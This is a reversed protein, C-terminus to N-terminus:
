KGKSSQGVKQKLWEEPYVWLVHGERSKDSIEKADYVVPLYDGPSVAGVDDARVVFAQIDAGWSSNFSVKIERTPTASGFLKDLLSAKGRRHHQFEKIAIIQASTRTGRQWLSRYETKNEFWSGIDSVAAVGIVLLVIFGLFFGRSPMSSSRAEERIDRFFRNADFQDDGHKM